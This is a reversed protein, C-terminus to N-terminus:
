LTLPMQREGRYCVNYLPHAFDHFTFIEDNWKMPVRQMEKFMHPAAIKMSEHSDNFEKIACLEGLFENTHSIDDFHCEVRPLRTKPDAEFIQFAPITSTYYDLDFFICGIPAPDYTKFFTRCTDKVDGIILTSFEIRRELAERDMEYFGEGWAYLIDRYDTSKPMSEGTDFGYIEFQVGFEKEIEKAHSEINVLGNGGAVGFEVASIKNLGMNRALTAARILCHANQPRIVADISARYSFPAVPFARMLRRWLAVRLPQKHLILKELEGFL